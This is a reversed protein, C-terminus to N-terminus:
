IKLHILVTLGPGAGDEPSGNPRGDPQGNILEIEGGHSEVINRVIVLGLGTGKAKTTYFPNFLKKAAEETLGPGTDSIAVLLRQGHPEGTEARTTVTILGGDDMAQIANILINLFVRHLMSEDGSIPAPDLRFNTRVEVGARALTVELFALIEELLDEVVLPALRPTPPRAFDLFETVVDSLRNAEEVIAQALRAQDPNTSLFRNLVDATSHIIGLPNRIEHAVTAVMSGLGALREAQDLRERLAQRELNRKTIIAEGRSVVWRLVITLIFALFVAVGLAFYQLKAIQRYEPTLDRNIELVGSLSQNNYSEMAKYCKLVFDGRPLLNFLLYGGGEYRFVTQSRQYELYEDESDAGGSRRPPNGDDARAGPSGREVYTYLDPLTYEPGPRLPALDPNLDSPLDSPLEGNPAAYEPKPHFVERDAIGAEPRLGPEPEPPFGQAGAAEGPAAPAPPVPAEPHAPPAPIPSFAEPAPEAPAAAEPPPAAPATVEAGPQFFDPRPGSLTRGDAQFPEGDRTLWRPLALPLTYQLRPSAEYRAIAEQFAGPDEAPSTPRTEDTAYVVEGDLNYILVRKLDFGYITNTIVQHLLVQQAPDRLRSRGETDSVKTLFNEYMQHNLNEMLKITDDEVRKTIIIEAQRSVVTVLTLVAAFIMVIAILSFSKALRFPKEDLSPGAAPAAPGNQPRPESHSSARSM